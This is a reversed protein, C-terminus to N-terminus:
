NINHFRITTSFVQRALRDNAIAPSYSEDLVAFRSPLPENGGIPKLSNAILGIRIATVRGWANLSSVRAASVYRSVSTPDSSSGIGYLVQMTEIGDVLRVPASPDNPTATNFTVCALSPNPNNSDAPAIYYSNAIIVGEAVGNGACDRRNATATPDDKLQPPQLIFTVRESTTATSDKSCLSGCSSNGTSGVIGPKATILYPEQYGAVRASQSIFELAFRGNEQVRAMAETTGITQRTSLFVQMVGTLLLMGLALAVLLEVISLGTQLRSFHTRM